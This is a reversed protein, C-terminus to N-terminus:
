PSKSGSAARLRARGLRRWRGFEALSRAGEQGVLTVATLKALSVYFAPTVALEPFRRLAFGARRWAGARFGRQRELDVARHAVLRFARRRLHRVVNPTTMPISEFARTLVLQHDGDAVRPTVVRHHMNTQHRRYGFVTDAVYGVRYRAALRLWLDWDAAHPLREDYYGIEDHATARVLPGSAPVFNGFVLRRFLDLGEHIGDEAHSGWVQTVQDKEDIFVQPAYVFGVQSDADFLAVQRAVADARLCLDDASLLGIFEGRAMGLGENYTAIHGINQSHRYVRVRREAAYRELIEATNDTSADDIVIVELSTFSQALLSEVARALYTAYNYTPVVFSVRPESM